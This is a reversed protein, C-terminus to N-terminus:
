PRHKGMDATAERIADMSQASIRVFRVGLKLWGDEAATVRRVEGVAEVRGSPLEFDLHLQRGVEIPSQTHLCLGSPSVDRVIGAFATTSAGVVRVECVFRPESRNETYMAVCQTM